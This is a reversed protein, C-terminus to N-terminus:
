LSWMTEHDVMGSAMAETGACHTKATARSRWASHLAAAPQAAASKAFRRERWLQTGSGRRQWQQSSAIRQYPARHVAVSSGEKCGDSHRGAAAGALKWLQTECRRGARWLAHRGGVSLRREPRRPQTHSPRLGDINAECSRRGCSQRQQSDTRADGSCNACCAWRQQVDSQQRRKVAARRPPKASGGFVYSDDQGFRLWTHRRV